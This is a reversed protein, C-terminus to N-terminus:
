SSLTFPGGEKLCKIKKIKSEVFLAKITSTSKYKAEIDTQTIEANTGLTTGIDGYGKDEEYISLGNLSSIKCKNEICPDFKIQGNDCTFEKKDSKNSEFRFNDKCILKCKDGTKLFPKCDLNKDEEQKDGRVIKNNEQKYNNTQLLKDPIICPSKCSNCAYPCDEALSTYTDKNVRVYNKCTENKDFDNMTDTDFLFDCTNSEKWKSLLDDGSYGIIKDDSNTSSWTNTSSEKIIPLETRSPDNQKFYLYNKMTSNNYKENKYGTGTITPCDSCQTEELCSSYKNTQCSPKTFNSCIPNTKTGYKEIFEKFKKDLSEVKQNITDDLLYSYTKAQLMKEKDEIEFMESEPVDEMVSPVRSITPQGPCTGCSLPCSDIARQRNWGLENCKNLGYNSGGKAYSVCTQDPFGQKYWKDNDKCQYDDSTSDGYRIYNNTILTPLVLQNTMPEKKNISIQLVLFLFFFLLIIQQM